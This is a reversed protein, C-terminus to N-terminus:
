WLYQEGFVHDVSDVCFGTKEFAFALSSKTFLSCHEYFFDWIVKNRLIWEVCPTEFFVRAQPSDQLAQHTSQLLGIPDPVHEIVHRCCVLDASIKSASEDYYQKLIQIKGVLLEENGKYSPDFGYGRCEGKIGEILLELFEGNGCGIEVLQTNESSVHSLVKKALAEFYSRFEQSCTQRNDYDAGYSILEPKFKSNFIFGCTSCLEMRLEGVDANLAEVESSYLLNQHILVRERTLINFLEKGECLPCYDM